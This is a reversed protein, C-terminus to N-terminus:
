VFRCHSLPCVSIAPYASQGTSLLLSCVGANEKDEASEVGGNASGPSASGGSAAGNGPEEGDGPGGAAGAACLSCMLVRSGLVVVLAWFFCFLVLDFCRTSGTRYTGLVLRGEGANGAGADEEEAAPTVKRCNRRHSRRLKASPNPNPYQHGCVHCLHGGSLAERGRRAAEDGEMAV